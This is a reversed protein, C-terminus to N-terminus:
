DLSRVRITLYEGPSGRRGLQLRLMSYGIGAREGDRRGELEVRYQEGAIRFDLGKFTFLELHFPQRSLASYRLHRLM